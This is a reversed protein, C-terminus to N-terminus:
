RRQESQELRVPRREKGPVCPSWELRGAKWSVTGEAQVVKEPSSAGGGGSRLWSGGELEPEGLGAWEREYGWGSQSAYGQGHGAGEM